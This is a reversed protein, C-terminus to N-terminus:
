ICTHTSSAIPNPTLVKSQSALMLSSNALISINYNAMLFNPNFYDSSVVLYHIKKQNIIIYPICNTSLYEMWEIASQGIPLKIKLYEIKGTINKMQIIIQDIIFHIPISTYNSAM